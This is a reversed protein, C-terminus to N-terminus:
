NWVNPNIQVVDLEVHNYTSKLIHFIGNFKWNTCVEKCFIFTSAKCTGNPTFKTYENKTGTEEGEDVDEGFFDLLIIRLNQKQKRQQEM